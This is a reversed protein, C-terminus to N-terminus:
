SEGQREENLVDVGFHRRLYKKGRSTVVWVQMNQSPHTEILDVMGRKELDLWDPSYIRAQYRNKLPKFLERGGKKITKTYDMGLAMGLLHIDKPTDQGDIKLYRGM